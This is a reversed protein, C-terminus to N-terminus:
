GAPIPDSQLDALEKKFRNLGSKSYEFIKGKNSAVVLLTSAKEDKLHFVLDYSEGTELGIQLSQYLANEQTLNDAFNTGKLNALPKLMNSVKDLDVQEGNYTWVPGERHLIYNLEGEFIVNNILNVDLNTITRDWFSAPKITKYQSLSSKVAYVEDADAERVFTEQYNAGMKGLVLQLLQTGADSTFSVFTSQDDVEYKLHKEPNKTIMRDVSLSTFQELLNNMRLTDVPYDSLNWVDNQKIFTLKGDPSNVEVASVKAKDIQFINPDITKTAVTGTQTVFYILALLALVAAAIFTQNNKM